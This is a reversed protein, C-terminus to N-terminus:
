AGNSSGALADQVGAFLPETITACVMVGLGWLVYGIIKDM